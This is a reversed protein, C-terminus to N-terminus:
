SGGGSSGGQSSGQQGKGGGQSMSEAVAKKLADQFQMRFSPTSLADTMVKMIQGRVEPTQILENIHQTYQPSKMIVMLDKTYQPDKLLQKQMDMLEPQVAKAFAAAFKPDKMQEALLNQTQKTQLAAEVGKAVDANSVAMDQRFQPDQLLSKIANKGDPSHLIDVVMQKTTSYDPQSQSVDAGSMGQGCGTVLFATAVAVLWGRRINM